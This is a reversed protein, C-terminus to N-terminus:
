DAPRQQAPHRQRLQRQVSRVKAARWVQRRQLQLQHHREADLGDAFYHGPQPHRDPPEGEHFLDFSSGDPLAPKGSYQACNEFYWDSASNSVDIQWNYSTTADGGFRRLPIRMISALGSDAYENIGYMYPSIPHVSATADVALAPGAQQAAAAFSALCGLAIALFSRM